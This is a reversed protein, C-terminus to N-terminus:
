GLLHLLIFFKEIIEYFTAEYKELATFDITTTCTEIIETWDATCYFGVDLLKPSLM